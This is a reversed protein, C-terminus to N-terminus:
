RRLLRYRAYRRRVLNCPDTGESVYGADLGLGIFGTRLLVRQSGVNDERVWADIARWGERFVYPVLTRVAAAMYGRGQYEKGMWYGMEVASDAYIVPKYRIYGVMEGGAWVGFRRTDDEREFSKLVDAATRYKSATTEGVREFYEPDQQVLEAYREADAPIFERLVVGRIGADLEMPNNM